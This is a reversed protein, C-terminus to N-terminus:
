ICASIGPPLRRSMTKLIYPRPYVPSIEGYIDANNKLSFTLMWYFPFIQVLAVVMLAATMLIFGPSIARKQKQIAKM